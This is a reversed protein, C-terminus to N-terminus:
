MFCGRELLVKRVWVDCLDGEIWRRVRVCVCVCACVRASHGVNCCLWVMRCLVALATYMHQVM